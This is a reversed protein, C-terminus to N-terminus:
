RAPARTATAPSVLKAIGFDLVFVRQPPRSCSTTPSSIAISSAARTRRMSRTPSRTSSRRARRRGDLPGDALRARLSEGDVLDMVLYLRGDDLRGFAFVDIVNPHDIQNVARAERVFREAAEASAALERRLVKIAVRKGIVPHRGAYVEGMAGAGLFREVVYDGATAGPPSGSARQSPPWWRRLTRSSWPLRDYCRASVAVCTRGGATASGPAIPSSTRTSRQARGQGPQRSPFGLTNEVFAFVTCDVTRPADGLVFPKDGLLEACRTSTPSAWRSRTEEDHRGTGQAHLKKNMDRRVLPVVFGPILKKFEDRVFPYHPTPSWRLYLGSSTSRRRSRGGRRRPRTRPRARVPRRRASSARPPRRELEEIILQSDGVLKGDLVVYPLKGKPSQGRAFKATEYPVETMRLYTELKACFPSLNPSGWPRTPPQYLVLPPM